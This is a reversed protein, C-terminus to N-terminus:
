NGCCRFFIRPRWSTSRRRYRVVVRSRRKTTVCQWRSSETTEDCQSSLLSGGWGGFRSLRIKDLWKAERVFLLEMSRASDALLGRDDVFFMGQVIPVTDSHVCDGSVRALFEGMRRRPEQVNGASATLSVTLLLHPPTSVTAFLPFGAGFASRILDNGAYVSAAYDPYADGLYNLVSMFLLFAGGGFFGTGIIPVIWHVSEKSSRSHHYARPAPLLLSLRVM